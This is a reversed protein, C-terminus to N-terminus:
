PSEEKTQHELLTEIINKALTEFEEDLPNVVNRFCLNFYPDQSEGKGFDDFEGGEWKEQALDAPSKKTRSSPESVFAFASAPFFHCRSRLVSFIFNWFSRCNKKRMPFKM